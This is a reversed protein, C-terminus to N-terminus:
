RSVGAALDDAVPMLGVANSAKFLVVEGPRVHQAVLEAAADKDAAHVVAVGAEATAAGLRVADENGVTILLAPRLKGVARGVEIHDDASTDGLENMQGLVVVMRRGAAITQLSKLAAIVSVPSANYADNIVTVGAPNESVQMRGQSVPEADNLAQAVLPLDDTFHLAAAATALANSVLHEGHLRLSVRATGHPTVLTFAPRGAADVSVDEARVTAQPSRGFTVVRAVTRAAMAAVMPDDANLVATGDAPLSEVLEGKAQAIAERSGFEGLHATGVSLVVGVQPRVVSTLYAIDGVHRAGMELVLFRADPTLRSVNEPMGVESNRNGPPATTPGFQSLVQGVLDKTTTKGVSGTIGVVGLGPLRRVLAKALRGYAAQVDSVVIAPVGLPRAALVAVAGAEIAQDAFDHGDVRAGALAVFLSGLEVHRSDFTVLGTVLTDSSGDHLTGSVDAALEALTM